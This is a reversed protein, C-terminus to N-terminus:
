PEYRAVARVPCGDGGRIPLPLVTLECSAPLGALATMNEVILCGGGLLTIHVGGDLDVSPVDVGLLVVGADLLAQACDPALYPARGFYEAQGLGRASWGTDLLVRRGALRGVRAATIAERPAVADLHIVQAPGILVSLDAEDVAPGGAVFHSPADLHTGLHSDLVLRRAEWGHSGITAYTSIEPPFHDPNVLMGPWIPMTLDALQWTM